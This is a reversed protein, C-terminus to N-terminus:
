LLFDCMQLTVCRRINVIGLQGTIESPVQSIKCLWLAGQSGEWILDPPCLISASVAEEAQQVLELMGVHM